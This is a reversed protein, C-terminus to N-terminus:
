SLCRILFFPKARRNVVKSQYLSFTKEAALWICIFVLSAFLNFRHFLSITVHGDKVAFFIPLRLFMNITSLEYPARYPLADTELRLHFTTLKGEKNQWKIQTMLCSEVPLLHVTSLCSFSFYICFVAIVFPRLM